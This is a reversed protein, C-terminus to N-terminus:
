ISMLGFCFMENCLKKRWGDVRLYDKWNTHTGYHSIHFKKLTSCAIHLYCCDRLPRTQIGGRKEEDRGGKVRMGQWSMIHIPYYSSKWHFLYQFPFEESHLKSIEMKKGLKRKSFIRSKTLPSSLKLKLFYSTKSLFLHLRCHPGFRRRWRRSISKNVAKGQALEVRRRVIPSEVYWISCAM